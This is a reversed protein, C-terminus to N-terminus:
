DIKEDNIVDEIRKNFKELGRVLVLPIKINCEILNELISRIENIISNILVFWGLISAIEFNLDVIKGLEVFSESLLFAVFVIVWNCLKKLIGIFGDKSNEVGKIRSKMWGTIWDLMNVIAFIMFLIVHNQFCMNVLWNFIEIM